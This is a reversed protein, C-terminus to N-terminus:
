REPTMAIRFSNAYESPMKEPTEIILGEDPDHRWTLPGAVGLMTVGKIEDPSIRKFSNIFVDDGPVGLCPAYVAHEGPTFRIDHACFRAEGTENFMGKKSMDVASKTPGEGAVCWPRTNYIAEGNIRLWAGLGKLARQAGEPITGDARPGVNLLLHGNKSVM